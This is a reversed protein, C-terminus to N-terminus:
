LISSEDTWLCCFMFSIASKCFRLWPICIIVMFLIATCLHFFMQFFHLIVILMPFFPVLLLYKSKIGANNWIICNIVYPITNGWQIGGQVNTHVRSMFPCSNESGSINLKKLEEPRISFITIASYVSSFHMAFLNERMGLFLQRVSNGPFCQTFDSFAKRWYRNLATNHLVFLMNQDYSAKTLRYHFIKLYLRFDAQQLLNLIIYQIASESLKDQLFIDKLNNKLLFCSFLYFSSHYFSFDLVVLMLSTFNSLKIVILYALLHQQVETVWQDM